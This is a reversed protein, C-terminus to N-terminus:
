LGFVKIATGGLIKRANEPTTADIVAQRSRAAYGFAGESHPYDSAWMVNGAGIYHLQELGIRDNQFTAYCHTSWYHTPRHKPLPELLDGFSDFIMEADQLAPAVWSIGGEAFVVKLGPTRDFVGGFVLQGFPKRFPDFTQLVWAGYVGRGTIDLKEAVHFCVPLGAEEVVNWFPELEIDGWAIDKGSRYKGPNNPLLFTKLGLAKIQGITARAKHPDWWNSCIGVGNFRGPDLRGQKAM